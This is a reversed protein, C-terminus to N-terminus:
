EEIVEHHITAISCRMSYLIIERTETGGVAIPGKAASHKDPRVYAEGCEYSYNDESLNSPPLM